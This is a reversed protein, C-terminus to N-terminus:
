VEAGVIRLTKIEFSRLSLAFDRGAGLTDQEEEAMNCEICKAAYPVHLVCATSTRVSEYLRLIIGNGDDAPKITELIVNGGEVWIEETPTCRGPLIAVPANLEYGAQVTGSDAFSSAFPYLAYTLTHKGRDATDDPVLPSRLLTLAIEGRGTSVGYCGDNLVAFGRNEECLATYRHNCVEYRDGAFAHSRHAPRRIYGFQIEHLADECLVNSEFHVKLLTHREQWDIRTEFDVRRSAAYLMIRQEATTKGFRRCVLLACLQPTDVDVSVTTAIPTDMRNKEYTRSLEWADYDPNIDQYLRWDNLMGGARHMPLCSEKDFLEVIRGQADVKLLLFENELQYGNEFCTLKADQPAHDTTANAAGHPPLVAYSATGDPLRVFAARQWPLPNVLTYADKDEQIDYHERRLMETVKALAQLAKELDREAEEHVRKISVGGLVDHFQCLMLTDWAAGVVQKAGENAHFALLAEADTLAREVKRCLAKTRRQATYTGRHWALYLEGVWRNITNSEELREFFSRLGEYRTRPVGELDPLRRALEVMDRTAGGGGDGYGFPYLMGEIDTQQTRNQEWRVALNEPDIPANNKFFSYALVASGDIGEWIFDQYPFPQCEPDQRLLKQTAFYPVGCGRLIQPLAATFGFTDPQWAVLPNIGLEQQYWRKGRVLQRTLSEGSPLNTDCEVYFAGEPLIQGRQVAEQVRQWLAADQTKLLELLKPECLLFQYEPYEDMLSLQNAYTRAVKHYTEELPWLWALDIHSQGLISMLPATSGNHCKLAPQLAERARLFSRRMADPPLEFDAIHTFNELARAVKQARLSKEPLVKLLSYLTEVDLWLQYADENWIALLSRQVTCQPATVPAIVERGPPCPGINELRAGHGAYSEILLHLTGAQTKQALTVYTHKKDIAGVALGDCYILQEGDLGSLLVVRQGVAEAPLAIECAFWGYEFCMGWKTGMPMPQMPQLLAEQPTIRDLTVFGEFDLVAVPAYLHNKLEQRWAEIRSKLQRGMDFM